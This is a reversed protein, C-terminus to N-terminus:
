QIRTEIKRKIRWTKMEKAEKLPKKLFEKLDKHLIFKDHFKDWVKKSAGKRPIRATGSIRIKESKCNKEHPSAGFARCEPCFSNTAPYNYDGRNYKM